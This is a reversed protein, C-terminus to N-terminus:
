GVYGQPQWDADRSQKVMTLVVGSVLAGVENLASISRRASRRTTADAAVLFVVADVLPAVVLADSLALVPPTDVLVTDYRTKLERILREAGEPTLVDDVDKGETAIIADFELGEPRRVAEDIGITGTLLEYVGGTDSDGFAESLAAGKPDFDLLVVSRGMLSMLHALALSTTTKGEGKMSSTILISRSNEESTAFLIRTRLQRIAAEYLPRGRETLQKMARRHDMRKTLPVVSLVPLGLDREVETFSRYTRAGMELFLAAALGLMLGLVGGFATLLKTRPTTPVAPVEAAEIIRTQVQPRGTQSSTARLRSLLAEYVDRLAEAERELQRLEVAARSVGLVQKELEQLANELSSVRIRAVEAESEIAAVVNKVEAELEDDIRDIQAQVKVLGPYTSGYRASLESEEQQLQARTNRLATVLTSGLVEAAAADGATAVLGRIQSARAEATALDARALALQGSADTAQRAAAESGIGDVLLRESKYNEVATEADVLQQRLTGVRDELTRIAREALGAREDLQDNIYQRAVANAIEAALVPDQHDMRVAIVYSEGLQRVIIQQKINRVIRTAAEMQQTLVGGEGDNGAPQAGNAGAAGAPGAPEAATPDPAPAVGPPRTGVVRSWLTTFKALAWASGRDLWQKWAPDVENAPDLSELREVGLSQVAARLLVNSTIVAIEGAIIADNIKFDSVLQDGAAVTREKSDLLLLARATYKPTITSVVLLTFLAGLLGGLLVVFKREWLRALLALLDVSDADDVRAPVTLGTGGHLPVPANM